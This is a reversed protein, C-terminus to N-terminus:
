YNNKQKIKGLISLNRNSLCENINNHFHHDNVNVKSGKELINRQEKELISNKMIQFEKQLILYSSIDLLQCIFDYVVIFKKSLFNYKKNPDFNKIFISCLYYKFPFLSKKIYHTKFITKLLQRDKNYESKNNVDNFPLELSTNNSIFFSNINENSDKNLALLNNNSKFRSIIDNKDILFKDSIKKEILKKENQNKLQLKSCEIKNKDLKNIESEKMKIKYISKKEKLNVFLLETLKRNESSIKFAKVFCKFFSIIINVIPLGNAIILFLKKYSRNYYIIENKLYINFSFFRSTSGENMLDRKNGISYSDGNLSAIGWFSYSKIHTSIIGQDDKLIHQQLYLRDIKNSFRSLHYFYNIYRIVIPHTRNMPQYNVIPYYIEFQLNNNKGAFEEIKDYTTCNSNNEDYNIGDKCNYLDLTVLNLFNSDWNGGVELDEMDICFLQDLNLDLIFKESNNRMLTENCLKYGINRYNVDMYTGNRTGQYYFIIPYLLDVHNITKGGFDRIRWPIWIKEEGSKINKYEEESTSTTSIPNKHLFEELNIFIFVILGILFSLLSLIGGLNTYFKRHKEIYFTFNTGFFVFYKLIEHKIENNM